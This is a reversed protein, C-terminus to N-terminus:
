FVDNVIKDCKTTPLRSKSSMYSAKRQRIEFSSLKKNLKINSNEDFKDMYEDSVEMANAVKKEWRKFSDEQRAM